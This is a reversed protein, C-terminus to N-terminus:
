REATVARLQKLLEKAAVVEGKSSFETLAFDLSVNGSLSDYTSDNDSSQLIFTPVVDIQYRAFLTPDLLVGNGM